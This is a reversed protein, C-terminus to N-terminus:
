KIEYDLFIQISLIKDEIENKISSTEFSWNKLNSIPGNNETTRFILALSNTIQETM